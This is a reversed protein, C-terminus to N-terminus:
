MKTLKTRRPWLHSLDAGFSVNDIVLRAEQSSLHKGYNSGVTGAAHGFVKNMLEDGIAGARLMQRCTHRFSYGVLDPGDLGIDDLYRNLRKSWAQAVNESFKGNHPPLPFLLGDRGEREMRKAYDIFGTKELDRIVPILRKSQKTKTAHLASICHVDGLRTLTAPSLALEGHRAGTMAMVLMFWYDAIHDRCAGPTSRSEHGKYGTFLPSHFITELETETFARRPIDLKEEPTRDRIQISRMNIDPVYERACCWEFFTNLHSKYRKVSDRHLVGGRLNPRTELHDIFDQIDSRTIDRAKKPGIHQELEGLAALYSKRTKESIGKKAFFGEIFSPWPKSSGQRTPVPQPSPADPIQLPATHAAGERIARALGDAEGQTRATGIAEIIDHQHGLWFQDQRNKTAELGGIRRLSRIFPETFSTPQKALEDAHAQLFQRLESLPRKDDRVGTILELAQRRISMFIGDLSAAMGLARAQATSKDSTRLSRVLHEGLIPRIDSPIRIKLYWGSGRRTMYPTAM